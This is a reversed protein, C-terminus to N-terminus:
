GAARSRAERGHVLLDACKSLRVRPVLEDAYRRYDAAVVTTRANEIM